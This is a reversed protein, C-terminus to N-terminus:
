EKVMCNENYLVDNIHAIKNTKMYIVKWIFWLIVLITNFTNFLVDSSISAFSSTIILAEFVILWHLAFVCPDGLVRILLMSSPLDFYYQKDSYSISAINYLAFSM